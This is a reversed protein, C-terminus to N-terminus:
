RSSKNIAYSTSFKDLLIMAVFVQSSSYDLFYLGSFIDFNTSGLGYIYLQGRYVVSCSESTPKTSEFLDLRNDLHPIFVRLDFNTVSAWGDFSSNQSSYM